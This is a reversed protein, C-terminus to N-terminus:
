EVKIKLNGIKEIIGEVIDGSNLKSIGAPTGTFIMDGRKLSFISSIYYIVYSINFLMESTNSSQRTEGNVKLMINLNGANSVESKKVILSIPASTLFGKSLTWPLRKSKLESQIDRLTFDIGVSYGYVYEMADEENINIGDKSIIVVLEVEYQLNDSINKGKFQPIKVYGPDTEVASNPKLFIVPEAPIDSQTEKQDFEKIHELYNKGICYVNQAEIIDTSNKVRLKSM